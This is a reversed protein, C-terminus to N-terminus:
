WPAEKEEVCALMPSLLDDVFPLCCAMLAHSVILWRHTNPLSSASASIEQVPRRRNPVISYFRAELAKLECAGCLRFCREMIIPKFAMFGPRCVARAFICSSSEVAMAHSRPSATWQEQRTFTGIVSSGTRASLTSVCSQAVERACCGWAVCRKRRTRKM